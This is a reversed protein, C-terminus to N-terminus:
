NVNEIHSSYVQFDGFKQTRSQGHVIRDRWPFSQVGSVDKLIVNSHVLEMKSLKKKINTLTSACNIVSRTVWLRTM